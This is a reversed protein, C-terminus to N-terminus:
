LSHDGVAYQPVTTTHPLQSTFTGQQAPCLHFFESDMLLLLEIVKQLNM